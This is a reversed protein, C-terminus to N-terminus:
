RSKRGTGGRICLIKCVDRITDNFSDYIRLDSGFITKLDTKIDNFQSCALLIEYPYFKKKSLFSKITDKIETVTLEGDDIKAPWSDALLTKFNHNSHFIFSRYKITRSVAKTTLVLVNYGIFTDPTKLNLGIFRQNKYKRRFYKLSTLTILHNAFIILDVNGIYPRLAAEAIKRANKASTLIQEANRWDIVRIVEVIPLEEELEDAFFEGGYGGDFVVIKLM